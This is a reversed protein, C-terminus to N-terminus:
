RVFFVPFGSCLVNVHPSAISLWGTTLLVSNLTCLTCMENSLSLPVYSLCM